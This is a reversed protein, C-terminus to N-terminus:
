SCKQQGDGRDCVIVVPAAATLLFGQLGIALPLGILPIQDALLAFVKDLFTGLFALTGLTAVLFRRCRLRRLGRCL